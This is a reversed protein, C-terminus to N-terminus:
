HDCRVVRRSCFPHAQHTQMTDLTICPLPITFISRPVVLHEFGSKLVVQRVKLRRDTQYLKCLAIDHALRSAGDCFAIRFSESEVFCQRDWYDARVADCRPVEVYQPQAQVFQPGIAVAENSREM